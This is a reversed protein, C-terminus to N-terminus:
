KLGVCCLCLDVSVGQVLYTFTIRIDIFFMQVTQKGVEKDGSIVLESVCMAFRAFREPFFDRQLARKKENSLCM